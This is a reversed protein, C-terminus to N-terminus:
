AGGLAAAPATHSTSSSQKCLYSHGACGTGPLAVPAAALGSCGLGVKRSQKQARGLRQEGTLELM